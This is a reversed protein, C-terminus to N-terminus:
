LASAIICTKVIEMATAGRSLDFAPKSLGQSVPGVAEAGALKNVLKYGINGSNLDPFVLVNAKGAVPSGPAKSAGVKPVIAADLQLEGDIALNPAMEKAIAVAKRVADIAPGEASGKTSYALFAVMPTEGTLKQHTDAAAVGISALEEPNPTPVYAPDSFTFLRGDPMVMLFSSSLVKMGPALGILQLSARVTDATPHACGAVSGHAEGKRVLMSGYFICHQLQKDIEDRTPDPNNKGKARAKETAKKRLTWYEDVYENWKPDTHYDRFLAGDLVFNLEKAKARIAAEDGILLPVCFREKLLIHAAEIVRPDSGEPLAIIAQKKRAEENLRVFPDM